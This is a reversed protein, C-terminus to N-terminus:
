ATATHYDSSSLVLPELWVAILAHLSSGVSVDCLTTTHDSLLKRAEEELSWCGDPVLRSRVHRLDTAEEELSWCGDPVLRSRVYRLDTARGQSAAQKQSRKLLQVGEAMAVDTSM